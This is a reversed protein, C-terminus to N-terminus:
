KDLMIQLIEKETDKMGPNSVRAMNAICQEPTEACIGDSVRLGIGKAALMASTVAAATSTALKLSCGVKGGDCIMGTINGTMNRIAYGIERDGGGLLWTMAASAATSSAMACTCVAALKGIHANMYQNLIHGFALAQLTQKRSAKVASAIAMIPLIVAIGKSGSGASSMTAHTCGELRAETAAAVRVMIQELLGDGFLDGHLEEQLAGAIGIGPNERIGYDALLGNMTAGELLFELDAETGTMIVQRIDAVTMAKLEDLADGTTAKQEVVAEHTVTGNVVLRTVHTHTGSILCGSVGNTTQLQTLAYIGKQSADIGVTVKGATVLATAKAAIDPTTYKMIELGAEPKEIYAGLAAAYDLGVFPFGAIGVSMGNKYLGPSVTLTIGTVDGGIAQAAHAASLAVCVPETCGLAPVVDKRLLQIIGDITM